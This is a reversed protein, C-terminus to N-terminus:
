IRSCQFEKHKTLGPVGVVAQPEIGGLPMYRRLDRDWQADQHAQARIAPNLSLGIGTGARELIAQDRIIRALNQTEEVAAAKRILWHAIERAVKPPCNFLIRGDEYVHVLNGDEAVNLNM